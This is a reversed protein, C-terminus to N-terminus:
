PLMRTGAEWAAGAAVLEALEEVGHTGAGVAKQVDNWLKDSLTEHYTHSAAAPHSPDFRVRWEMTVLFQISDAVSQQNSVFVIPSLCCPEYQKSWTTTFTNSRETFDAYDNMDLPYASCQVGRLALKGGALMRPSFYSIFRSRLNSWTDTQGGYDFPQSVRGMFYSGQASELPKSNVVQVTMSAPVLNAADGLGSVPTPIFQAGNAANVATGSGGVQMIGCSTLWKGNTSTENYRIPSFLIFNSDATTSVLQNTRIVTYPGVARPLGLTRTVKADLARVLAALTRRKEIQSGFNKKATEAVGQYLIRASRNAQYANPNPKPQCNANGNGNKRGRRGNAAKRNRAM